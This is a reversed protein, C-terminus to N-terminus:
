AFRQKLSVAAPVTKESIASRRASWVFSYKVCVDSCRLMLLNLMVSLSGQRCRKYIDRPVHSGLNVPTSEICKMWLINLSSRVKIGNIADIKQFHKWLLFKIMHSFYDQLIEYILNKILLVFFKSRHGRSSM